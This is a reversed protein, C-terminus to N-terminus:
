ILKLYRKKYTKSKTKRYTKPKRKKIRKNTRNNQIQRRKGGIKINQGFEDEYISYMPALLISEEKSNIDFENAPINEKIYKRYDRAIKEHYLARINADNARKHAYEAILSLKRHIETKAGEMETDNMEKQAEHM